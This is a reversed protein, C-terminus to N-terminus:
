GQGRQGRMDFPAHWAMGVGPVAMHDLRQVEAGRRMAAREFSAFDCFADFVAEAPAAIDETTSFKM